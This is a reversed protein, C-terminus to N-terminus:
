SVDYFVYRYLATDYDAFLSVTNMYVFGHAEYMARLKIKHARVDLRVDPYGKEKGTQKFYEILATSYGQKAMDPDVCLKHLYLSQKPKMMPWYIPDYDVFCAAAVIDGQKEVVYFDQIQYTQSLCKWDIEEQNWQHMDHADNYAVRKQYLRELKAIDQDRAQRIM